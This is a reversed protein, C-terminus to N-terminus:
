GPIRRHRLPASAHSGAARGRRARDRLSARAASELDVVVRWGDVIVERRLAEPGDAVELPLLLIAAPAGRGAGDLVAREGGLMRLSWGLDAQPDVTIPDLGAAASAPALSVLVAAPGVAGDVRTM